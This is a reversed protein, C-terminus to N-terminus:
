KKGSKDKRNIMKQYISTFVLLWTIPGLVLSLIVIAIDVGEVRIKRQYLISDSIIGIIYALLGSIMWSWSFYLLTNM